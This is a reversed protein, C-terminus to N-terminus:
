FYDIDSHLSEGGWFNWLSAFAFNTRPVEVTKPLTYAWHEGWKAGQNVWRTLLKIEDKSLPPSDYPMREEPDDSTLRRILESHEADGPVIAPKGSETKAFAEEVFLFSLGGNQKVGGHCSICHKNIIPKVEASFDVEEDSSLNFMAVSVIVMGIVTLIFLKSTYWM